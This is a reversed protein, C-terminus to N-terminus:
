QLGSPHLLISSLLYTSWQKALPVGFKDVYVPVLSKVQNSDPIVASMQLHNRVVKWSLVLRYLHALLHTTREQFRIGLVQDAMNSNGDWLGKPFTTLAVKSWRIVVGFFTPKQACNQLSNSDGANEIKKIMPNGEFLHTCSWILMMIAESPSLSLFLCTQSM